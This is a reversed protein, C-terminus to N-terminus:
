SNATTTPSSSRTASIRRASARGGPTRREPGQPNGLGQGRLDQNRRAVQDMGEPPRRGQGEPAQERRRGEPHPRDRRRQRGPIREEEQQVRQRRGPGGQPRGAHQKLTLPTVENRRRASSASARCRATPRRPRVRRHRHEGADPQRADEIRQLVEQPHHKEEGSGGCGIMAVVALILVPAIFIRLSNPRFM